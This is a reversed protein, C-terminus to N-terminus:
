RRSRHPNAWSTVGDQVSDPQVLRRDRRVPKAVPPVWPQAVPVLHIVVRRLAEHLHEFYGDKAPDTPQPNLKTPNPYALGGNFAARLILCPTAFLIGPHGLCYEGHGGQARSLHRRNCSKIKLHERIIDEGAGLSAQNVQLRIGAEALIMARSREQSTAEPIDSVVNAEPGSFDLFRRPVAGDPLFWPADPFREDKNILGIWARSVPGLSDYNIQSSLYLVCDRFSRVDIAEPQFERLVWILDQRPDYQLFVCAPSRIGFDWGRYIPLDLLGGPDRVYTKDGGNRDYEFYFSAGAATTWDRLYERRWQKETLTKRARTEWEKSRKDPHAVYDLEVVTFGGVTQRFKLGPVAPFNDWLRPGKETPEDLLYKFHRAGPSGFAATTVAWISSAMPASAQIIAEFYDQYAAEDAFTGSASGGRATSEAVNQTVGLMYSGTGHTIQEKPRKDIPLQERIWEPLRGHVVRVKDRLLELADREKKRSVLYRRGPRFKCRWDMLQLFLTTVMMQRCKDVLIFPMHIWVETIQRLYEYSPFPKVPHEEDKEDTTWILPRGEPFEVDRMHLIGMDTCDTTTPDVGTLWHWPHASWHDILQQREPPLPTTTTAIKGM